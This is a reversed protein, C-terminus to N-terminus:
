VEVQTQGGWEMGGLGTRWVGRKILGICLDKHFMKRIFDLEVEHRSVRLTKETGLDLIRAEGSDHSQTSRAWAWVAM